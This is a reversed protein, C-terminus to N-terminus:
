NKGTIRNKGYYNKEKQKNGDSYEEIVDEYEEYNERLIDNYYTINDESVEEPDLPTYDECVYNRDVYQCCWYCGSCSKKHTKRM